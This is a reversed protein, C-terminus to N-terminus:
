VLISVTNLNVKIIINWTGKVYNMGKKNGIDNLPYPLTEPTM